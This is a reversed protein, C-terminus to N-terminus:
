IAGRLRFRVSKKQLMVWKGETSRDHWADEDQLGKITYESVRKSVLGSYINEEEWVNMAHRKMKM